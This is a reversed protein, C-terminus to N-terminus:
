SGSEKTAGQLADDIALLIVKSSYTAGSVVDVDLSQEEIVQDPISEAAQGKGNVHKVLDIGTILHDRVTVNVIVSVPFVAYKGEYTGDSVSSLDIDRIKIDKLDELNRSNSSFFIAGAIALLAVISFIVLIIKVPKKM